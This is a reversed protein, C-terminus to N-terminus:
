NAVDVCCVKTRRHASKVPPPAMLKQRIDNFDFQVPTISGNPPRNDCVSVRFALGELGVGRNHRGRLALSHNLPFPPRTFTALSAGYLPRTQSGHQPEVPMNVMCSAMRSKAGRSLKEHNEATSDSMPQRM